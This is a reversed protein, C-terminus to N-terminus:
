QKASFQAFRNLLLQSSKDQFPNITNAATPAVSPTILTKQQQTNSFKAGEKKTLLINLYPIGFGMLAINFVIGLTVALGSSRALRLMKAEFTEILTAAMNAARMQAIRKVAYAEIDDKRMAQVSFVAHSAQKVRQLFRHFPKNPNLTMSWFRKLSEPQIQTYLAKWDKGFFV